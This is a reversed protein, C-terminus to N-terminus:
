RRPSILNLPHVQELRDLARPFVNTAGNRDLRSVIGPDGLIDFIRGQPLSGILKMRFKQHFMKRYSSGLEVPCTFHCLRIYHKNGFYSFDHPIESSGLLLTLRWVFFLKLSMVISQSFLHM